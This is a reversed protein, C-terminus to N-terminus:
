TKNIDGATERYTTNGRHIDFQVTLKSIIDSITVQKDGQSHGM